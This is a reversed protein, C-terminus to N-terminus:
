ENKNNFFHKARCHYGHSEAVNIAHDLDDFAPKEGQFKMTIIMYRAWHGGCWRELLDLVREPYAIVDSVMWMHEPAVGDEQKSSSSPLSSLSNSTSTSTSTSTSFPSFAFADGKVFEVMPDNMLTPDLQNSRDVAVVRCGLRRVLVSTWGGPCAGLDVVVASSSSSAQFPAPRIRMCELAEMLKRYASSPMRETIDVKSMGLPTQWNPWVNNKGPGIHTSQTLSAVAVDPAMLLVQLVWREEDMLSSSSESSTSKNRAAEFGKKLMISLENAVRQSRNLMVPNNQGKCMGPVLGHIALSGRPALRLLARAQHCRSSDDKMEESGLLAAHVAKALGKISEAQVVVAEPISQLAYVPDYHKPLTATTTGGGSPDDVRVLGPSPSQLVISKKASSSSSSVKRRIEEMLTEEYTHRCTFYTPWPGNPDTPPPPICELKSTSSAGGVRSSSAGDFTRTKSSGNRQLKGREAPRRSSPDRRSTNPEVRKKGASNYRNRGKKMVPVDETELNDVRRGVSRGNSTSGNANRSRRSSSAALLCVALRLVSLAVM